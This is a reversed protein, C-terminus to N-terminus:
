RNAIGVAIPADLLLAASLCWEEAAQGTLAPVTAATPSPPRAAAAARPYAMLLRSLHCQASLGCAQVSQESIQVCLVCVCVYVCVDPEPRGERLRLPLGSNGSIPSHPLGGIQLHELLHGQPHARLEKM